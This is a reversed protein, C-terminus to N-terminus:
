GHLIRRRLGWSGLLFLASAYVLLIGAEPLVTLLTGDHRVLSAFGDAAWAHPTLHAVLLMTPSYFELPMMSGGLASLGLGVLLGTAIAQNSNRAMAGLLMGAGGAVLAFLLMLVGAAFPDGWSVGFFLAAGAMIVLGQTVAVAVRGLAEGAVIRSVRTPTAFMRRAVGLRRTEILATATTMSTVFIFLLLQGSAGLDFRGLDSPFAAEGATDTVVAVKPATAASADTLEVNTALGGGLEGQLTRAVRLRSAQQDVAAMVIMSLQQATRDSRSLYEVRITRRAAVDVDEIAPVIVAAEVNGDEVASVATARDHVREIQVGEAAELEDLLDTTLPTVQQAVVALRPESEGGFALGLVMIMLLPFLVMFFGSTRDRLTRRLNMGAIALVTM